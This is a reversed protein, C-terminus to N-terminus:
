DLELMHECFWTPPTCDAGTIANIQKLCEPDVLWRKGNCHPYSSQEMSGTEITVFLQQFAEYSVETFRAPKSAEFECWREIPSVHVKAKM